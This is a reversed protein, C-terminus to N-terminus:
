DEEAEPPTGDPNELLDHGRYELMGNSVNFGAGSVRTFRAQVKVKAGVAFNTPIPLIGSEPDPPEYRGRSALEVAEDIQAQNEAYGALMIRDEEEGPERVDSIWLHPAAAPDCTRGEPCEPPVYIEVIYGTIAVDTDMTTAARRRVGYVSFSGDAYEVDHPPPPLTPVSPLSPDVDPLREITLDSAAQEGCGVAVGALLGAIVLAGLLRRVTNSRVAHSRHQHTRNPIHPMTM